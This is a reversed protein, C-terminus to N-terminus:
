KGSWLNYGNPHRTNLQEIYHTEMKYLDELSDCKHLEQVLFAGRGFERIAHAIPMNSKKENCHQRFRKNIDQKTADVYQM